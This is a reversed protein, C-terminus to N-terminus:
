DRDAEGLQSLVVEFPQHSTGVVGPQLDPL